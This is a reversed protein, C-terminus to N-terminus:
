QINWFTYDTLFEAIFLLRTGCSTIVKFKIEFNCRYYLFDMYALLRKNNGTQQHITSLANGYDSLGELYDLHTEKVVLVIQYTKARLLNIM